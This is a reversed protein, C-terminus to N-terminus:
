HLNFLFFFFISRQSWSTFPAALQQVDPLHSCVSSGVPTVSVIRTTVYHCSPPKFSCRWVLCPVFAASAGCFWCFVNLAAIISEILSFWFCSFYKDLIIFSKPPFPSALCSSSSVAGSLIFRWSKQCMKCFLVFCYFLIFCSISYFGALLTFHPRHLQNKLYFRTEACSLAQIVVMM